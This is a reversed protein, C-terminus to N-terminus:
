RACRTASKPSAASSGPMAVGDAGAHRKSDIRAALSRVESELAEIAQRPMADKLMMGIEALDDRLTEVASDLGCPRM